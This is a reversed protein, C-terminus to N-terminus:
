ASESYQWFVMKRIPERIVGLKTPATIKELKKVLIFDSLHTTESVNIFLMPRREIVFTDRHM